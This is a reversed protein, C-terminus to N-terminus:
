RLLQNQFNSGDMAEFEFAGISSPRPENVLFRSVVVM